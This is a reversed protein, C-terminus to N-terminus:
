KDVPKIMRGLNKGAFVHVHLHPVEQHADDGANSLIRYGTDVAGAQRAVEGVARFFDAIEADSAEWLEKKMRGIHNDEFMVGPNETALWGEPVKIESM